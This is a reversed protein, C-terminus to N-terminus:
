GASLLRTLEADAVPHGEDGVEAQLRSLEAQLELAVDRYAPDGIV